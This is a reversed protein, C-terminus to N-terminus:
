EGRRLDLPVKVPGWPADFTMDGLVQLDYSSSTLARRASNVAQLGSISWPVTVIGNSAAPANGLTAISDGNLTVAGVMAAINGLRNTEQAANLTLTGRVGSLSMEYDFDEIRIDPASPIPVDGELPVAIRREMGFSKLSLGVEGSYPVTEAGAALSQILPVIDSYRITVPTELTVPQGPALTTGAHTANTVLDLNGLRLSYDLSEVPVSVSTTNEVETVLGFTAEQWGLERLRLDAGRVNVAERALSQLQSCGGLLANAGLALTM